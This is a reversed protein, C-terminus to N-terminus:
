PNYDRTALWSVVGNPWAAGNRTDRTYLDFGEKTQEAFSAMFPWAAAEVSLAISYENNIFPTTFTVHAYADGNTTAKGSKTAKIFSLGLNIYQWVGDRLHYSEGTDLEKFVQGNKGGTSLTPKTETSM